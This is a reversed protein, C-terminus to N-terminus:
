RLIEFSVFFQSHKDTVSLNKHNEKQQKMIKELNMLKM